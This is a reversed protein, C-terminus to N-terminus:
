SGMGYGSASSIVYYSIEPNNLLYKANPMNAYKANLLYKADSHNM